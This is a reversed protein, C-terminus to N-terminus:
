VAWASSGATSPTRILPSAEASAQNAVQVTTTVGSRVLLGRGPPWTGATSRPLRVDFVEGDVRSTPNLLLGGRDRRAAARWGRFRHLLDETTAAVLLLSGIDRLGRVYRELRDTAKMEDILEADDVILVRPESTALLRDLQAPIDRCIVTADLDCLPTPRSAIVVVPLGADLSRALGLLATSRGSRPPGAVVFSGRHSISTSPVSITTRRRRDRRGPREAARGRGEACHRSNPWTLTM